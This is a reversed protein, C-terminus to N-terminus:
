GCAKGARHLVWPVQQRLWRPTTLGASSSVVGAHRVVREEAEERKSVRGGAQAEVGPGLVM